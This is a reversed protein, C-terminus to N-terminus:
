KHLKHYTFTIIWYIATWAAASVFGIWVSYHTIGWGRLLISRLADGPLTGPVLYGVYQIPVPLAEFPFITGKFQPFLMM